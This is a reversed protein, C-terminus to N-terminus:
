SLKELIILEKDKRKDKSSEIQLADLKKAIENILNDTTSKKLPARLHPPIEHPVFLPAKSENEKKLTISSPIIRNELNQLQEGIPKLYINTFNNQQIINDM